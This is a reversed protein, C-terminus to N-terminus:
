SRARYSPLQKGAQIIKEEEPQTAVSLSVPVVIAVLATKIFHKAMLRLMGNFGIGLEQM